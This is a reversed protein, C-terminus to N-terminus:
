DDLGVEEFYKQGARLRSLLKRSYGHNMVGWNFMFPALDVLARIQNIIEGMEEYVEDFEKSIFSPICRGTAEFNTDFDLHAVLQRRPDTFNYAKTKCRSLRGHLQSYSDADKEKIMELLTFLSLNRKRVSEKPDLLRSVAVSIYSLYVIYLDSFFASDSDELLENTQDDSRYLKKFTTHISHVHVIEDTLLKILRHIQHYEKM